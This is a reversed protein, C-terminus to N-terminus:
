HSTRMMDSCFVPSWGVRQCDIRSKIATTDISRGVRRLLNLPLAISGMQRYCGDCFEFQLQESKAAISLPAM